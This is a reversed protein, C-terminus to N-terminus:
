ERLNARLFCIGDLCEDNLRSRIKTCIYSSASFARESDASTSPITMLYDYVQQLHVGRIGEDEFFTIEKKILAELGQIKKVEPTALLRATIASELKHKLSDTKSCSTSGSITGTKEKDLTDCSQSQPEAETEQASSLRKVLRVM